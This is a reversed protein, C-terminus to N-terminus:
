PRVEALVPACAITSNLEEQECVLHRAILAVADLFISAANLTLLCGTKLLPPSKDPLQVGMYKLVIISQQASKVPRNFHSALARFLGHLLEKGVSKLSAKDM